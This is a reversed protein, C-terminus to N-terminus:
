PYFQRGHREIHERLTPNDIQGKLSLDITYPLLLDDLEKEITLFEEWPIDGELTLDIDSNPRHRGTARSGYLIAL